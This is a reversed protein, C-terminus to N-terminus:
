KAGYWQRTVVRDRIEVSMTRGLAFYWGLRYEEGPRYGAKDRPDVKPPGLAAVVQTETAGVWDRHSGGWLGCRLALWGAVLIAVAGDQWTFPQRRM